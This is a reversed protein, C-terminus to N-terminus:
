RLKMHVMDGVERRLGCLDSPFAALTPLCCFYTALWVWITEMQQIRRRLVEVGESILTM